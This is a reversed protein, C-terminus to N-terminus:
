VTAPRANSKAQLRLTTKEPCAENPQQRKLLAFKFGAKAYSISRNKYYFVINDNLNSSESV